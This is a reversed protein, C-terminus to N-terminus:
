LHLQKNLEQFPIFNSRSFLILSLEIGGGGGGSFTQKSGVSGGRDSNYM